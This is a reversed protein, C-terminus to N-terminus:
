LKGLFGTLKEWRPDLNKNESCACQESGKLAGCRPCLGQCEEDCLPQMPLDLLIEQVILDGLDLESGTVVLDQPEAELLAKDLDEAGEGVRHVFFSLPISRDAEFGILCRSCELGLRVTVVGHVSAGDDTAELHIEGRLAPAISTGKPLKVSQLVPSLIDETGSFELVLGKETIDDFRIKMASVTGM